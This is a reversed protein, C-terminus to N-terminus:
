EKKIDVSNHAKDFCKMNDFYHSKSNNLGFFIIERNGAESIITLLVVVVNRVCNTELNHVTYRNIIM